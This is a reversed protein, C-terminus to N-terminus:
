MSVQVVDSAMRQTAGCGTAVLSIYLSTGASNSPAAFSFSVLKSVDQNVVGPAALAGSPLLYPVSSVQLQLQDTYQGTTWQVSVSNTANDFSASIGTPSDTLCAVPSNLAAQLGAIADKNSSISEYNFLHVARSNRYSLSNNFAAFRQKYPNLNKRFHNIM